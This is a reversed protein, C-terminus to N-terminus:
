EFDHIYKRMEEKTPISNRGGIKTVSIGGAVTAITLITNLDYKKSIGYVFAGHFIDGAGTSDLAEVKLAEMIGINNNQKYLVGHSELTIIINGKFKNEMSHYLDLITKEDQYNINVKTVKEAFEKSCVLYDVKKALNISEDTTKEADMISIANPYKDLIYNAGNIERADVLIIDPEFDVNLEDFYLDNEHYSLITRSGNSTNNIIFSTITNSNNCIEVYRTDVNVSKLEDIVKKGYYDNGIHGALYVEAGWKGLLYAANSANGGGCEVKKEVRIKKNELIFESVPFTIDYSISGLCLIKM